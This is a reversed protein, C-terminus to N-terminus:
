RKLLFDLRKDTLKPTIEIIEARVINHVVFPDNSVREHIEKSTANHAMIAGGRNPELNGVVLFVDDDVGQTIWEQHAPMYEKAQSKNTSFQLQIIFM